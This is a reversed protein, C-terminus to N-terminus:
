VIWTPHIMLWLFLFLSMLLSYIHLADVQHHVLENEMLTNM